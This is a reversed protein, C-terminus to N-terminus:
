PDQGADAQALERAKLWRLRGVTVFPREGALQQVDVDLPEAPDLATGPM